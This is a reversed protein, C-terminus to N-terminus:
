VGSVDRAQGLRERETRIHKFAKRFRNVLLWSMVLAVLPGLYLLLAGVTILLPALWVLLRAWKHMREDPVRKALTALYVMQVILAVLWAAMYLLVVGIIAWIMANSPMGSSPEPLLILSAFCGLFVAHAILMGRVWLRARDGAYQKSRAFMPVSLLWWGWLLAGVSVVYVCGMTVSIWHAVVDVLIVNAIVIPILLIVSVLVIVSGRHLSALVADSAYLAMEGKLTHLVPEGCEPCIGDESLGILEYGCNICLVGGGVERATGNAPHVPPAPAAM